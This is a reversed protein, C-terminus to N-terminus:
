LWIKVILIKVTNYIKILAIENDAISGSFKFTKSIEGCSSNRELLFEDFTKM